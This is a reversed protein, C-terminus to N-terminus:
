LEHIKPERGDVCHTFWVGDKGGRGSRFDQVTRPPAAQISVSERRAM